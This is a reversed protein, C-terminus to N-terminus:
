PSGVSALASLIFLAQHMVLAIVGLAVVLVNLFGVKLLKIYKLVYFHLCGWAAMLVARTGIETNNVLAVFSTAVFWYVLLYQRLTM